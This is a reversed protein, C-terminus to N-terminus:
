RKLILKQLAQIQKNISAILAVISKLVDANSVATTASKVVINTTVAPAGAASVVSAYREDITTFKVSGSYSGETAGITYKYTLSGGDFVDATTPGTITKDLGGISVTPLTTSIAAKDNAINGNSDFGTITLTALDGPIYSAKDWSAKYTVADGACNVDLVNSTVVSGDLNTYTLGLKGAGATSKCTFYSRGNTVTSYNSALDYDRQRPTSVSSVSGSRVATNEFLTTLPYASRAVSSITTYTPNGAADSLKWYFANATGSLAGREASFIEVKAVKGTFVMTKSGVVTGNWSVTVTTTVPANSPASVQVMAADPSATSVFDTSGVGDSTANGAEINVLAGNTATVQLLGTTGSIANRFADRVRVQLHMDTDFAASGIYTTADATLATGPQTGSAAGYVASTSAALVGAVSSSTVTVTIQGQLSLGTAGTPNAVIAADTAATGTMTYGSYYQITMSTVGANPKAVVGWNRINTNTGGAAATATSNLAIGTSSTITGGTVVITGGTDTTQSAYVSIAGTSLLVATTTTGATLGTTSALDGVDVLGLSNASTVDPTSGPATSSTTLATASGTSTSVAAIYLTDAVALAPNTANGAEVNTGYGANAAPSAVVSIVGATLATVAVLAIRKRLTKTSM